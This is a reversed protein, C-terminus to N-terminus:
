IKKENQNKKNYLFHIGSTKIADHCLWYVEHLLSGSKCKETSLYRCNQLKWSKIEFWSYRSFTAFTNIMKKISKKDTLFFTSGDTIYASYLHIHKIGTVRKNAKTLIFVTGLSLIFPYVSVRDGQWAGKQLKLYKTTNGGNIIWPEQCEFLM